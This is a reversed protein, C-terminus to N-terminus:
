TLFRNLYQRFQILGFAVGAIWGGISGALFIPADPVHLINIRYYLLADVALFSILVGFIFVRIFNKRSIKFLTGSVFFVLMQMGLSLAFGMFGARLM